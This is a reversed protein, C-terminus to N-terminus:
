ESMISIAAIVPASAAPVALCDHLDARRDVAGLQLHHPSGPATGVRLFNPVYHLLVAFEGIPLTM